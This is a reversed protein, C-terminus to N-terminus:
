GYAETMYSSQYNGAGQASSLMAQQTDRLMAKKLQHHMKEAHEKAKSPDAGNYNNIITIKDVTHKSTNMRGMPSVNTESIDHIITRGTAHRGHHGGTAHGRHGTGKKSMIMPGATTDIPPVVIPANGSPLSSRTGPHQGPLHAGPWWFERKQRLADFLSPQTGLMSQVLDRQGKDKILAAGGQVAGAIDGRQVAGGISILSGATKAINAVQQVFWWLGKVVGELGHSIASVVKHISNSSSMLRSTLTNFQEMMRSLADIFRVILGPLKSGLMTLFKNQGVVTMLHAWAAAMSDIKNAPDQKASALRHEADPLQQRQGIQRKMTARPSDLLVESLFTATNVPAGGLITRDLVAKQQQMSMQHYAPYFKEIKPIAIHEAWAIPDNRLIDAGMIPGRGTNNILGMGMLTETFTKSRVGALLSQMATKLIVGAKGRGSGKNVATEQAFHMLMNMNATPSLEYRASGETALQQQIIEPTLRGGSVINANLMQGLVQNFIRPDSIAGQMEASKILAMAHSRASAGKMHGQAQMARMVLEAEAVKDLNQQAVGANGFVAKSEILMQMADAQSIGPYRRRIDNTLGPANSVQQPTFGTMGMMNQLHAMQMAPQAAAGLMSGIQQVGWAAFALKGFVMLGKDFAKWAQHLGSIQKRTRDAANHVQNLGGVAGSMGRVGAAENVQGLNRKMHILASNTKGVSKQMNQNMRFFSRDLREVLGVLPSLKATLNENLRLDIGVEYM